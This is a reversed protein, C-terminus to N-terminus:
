DRTKKPLVCVHYYFVLQAQFVKEQTTSNTKLPKGVTPFEVGRLVLLNPALNLFKYLVKPWLFLM